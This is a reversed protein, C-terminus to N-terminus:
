LMLSFLANSYIPESVVTVLKIMPKVKGQNTENFIKDNTRTAHAHAHTHTIYTHTYIIYTRIYTRAHKIYIRM